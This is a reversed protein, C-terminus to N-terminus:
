GKTGNPYICICWLGDYIDSEVRKGIKSIKLYKLTKEDMRWILKANRKLKPDYKYIIDNSDVYIIKLIKISIFFDIGNFNGDRLESQSLTYSPWGFSEGIKCTNMHTYSSYTQISKITLTITIEKWSSPMSILKLYVDCSGISEKDTGNPFLRIQWTIQGITFKNSKFEQGNKANLIKTLIREQSKNRLNKDISWICEGDNLSINSTTATNISSDIINEM